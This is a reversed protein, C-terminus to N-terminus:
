LGSVSSIDQLIPRIGTQIKNLTGLASTNTDAFLWDVYIVKKPEINRISVGGLRIDSGAGLQISAGKGLQISVGGGPAEFRVAPNERRVQPTFDHHQETRYLDM